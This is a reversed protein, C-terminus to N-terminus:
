RRVGGTALLVAAAVVCVSIALLLTNGGVAAITAAVLALLALLAPLSM